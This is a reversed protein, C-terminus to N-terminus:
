TLIIHFHHSSADLKVTVARVDTRQSGGQHAALTLISFLKTGKAGLNATGASFLAPFM